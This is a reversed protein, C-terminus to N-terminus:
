MRYKQCPFWWIYPWIRHIYLIRALEVFLALPLLHIHRARHLLISALSNFCYPSFIGTCAFYCAGPCNRQLAEDHPLVLVGEHGVLVLYWQLLVLLQSNVAWISRVCVIVCHADCRLDCSKSAPQSAQHPCIMTLRLWRSWVPTTALLAVEWRSPCLM